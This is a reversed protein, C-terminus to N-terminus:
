PHGRRDGNSTLPAQQPLDPLRKGPAAGGLLAEVHHHADDREGHHGLHARDVQPAGVALHLQEGGFAQIGVGDVDGPHLGAFAQDALDHPQAAREIQDVCGSVRRERVPRLRAFVGIVREEAHRQQAAPPGDAHQHDLVAGLPDIGLVLDLVDLDDGHHHGLHDGRALQDADAFQLADFQRGAPGLPQFPRFEGVAQGVAHRHQVLRRDGGRLQQRVVHRGLLRTERRRQLAQLALDVLHEFALVAQDIGRVFHELGIPHERVVAAPVPAEFVGHAVSQRGLGGDFPHAGLMARAQALGPVGVQALAQVVQFVQVVPEQAVQRAISAHRPFQGVVRDEDGPIQTGGVEELVVPGPKTAEQQLFPRGGAM